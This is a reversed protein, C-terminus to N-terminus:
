DDAAHVDIIKTNPRQSPSEPVFIDDVSANSGKGFHEDNDNQNM